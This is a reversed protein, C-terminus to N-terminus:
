FAGFGLLFLLSKKMRPQLYGRMWFYTMPAFFILGISRGLIRHAWEIFYIQKFGELDM